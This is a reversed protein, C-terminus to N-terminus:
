EGALVMELLASVDNGDVAGDGRVDAVAKQAVTVGGALVMELLASVDNGDISEDGNIDGKIADVIAEINAFEKWGNAARYQEISEAPVYLTANEYVPINFASYYTVPPAAARVTVREINNNGVFASSEMKELTAPLDLAKINSCYEFARQGIYRLRDTKITTLASCGSFVGYGLSDVENLTVSKLNALDRFTEGCLATVAYPVYSGDSYPVMEAAPITLETMNRDLNQKYLALRYGDVDMRYRCGSLYISDCPIIHTFFGWGASNRYAEVSTRPVYLNTLDPYLRQYDFADSDVDLPRPQLNVIKSESGAPSNRSSVCSWFCSNGISSLEGPLTIAELDSLSFAERGITACSDPIDLSTLKTYEFALEDMTTLRRPLTVEALEFCRAFARRSITTVNAPISISTLATCYAFASAGITELNPASLIVTTLRPCGGFAEDGIKKLTNSSIYVSELSDCSSFIAGPLETLNGPVWISKLRKCGGFVVRGMETINPGTLNPWTVTQLNPCDRFSGIEIARMNNNFTISSLTPNENFAYGRIRAVPYEVGDIEVTEPITFDTIPAQRADYIWAYPEDGNPVVQYTVGDIVVSDDDASAGVVVALTLLSAFLYKSIRMKTM